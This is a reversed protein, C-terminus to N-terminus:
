ALRALVTRKGGKRPTVTQTDLRLPGLWLHSFVFIRVVHIMIPFGIAM